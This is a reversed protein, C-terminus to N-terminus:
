AKHHYKHFLLVFVYKKLTYIVPLQTQEYCKKNKFDILIYFHYFNLFFTYTPLNFKHKGKHTLMIAILQYLNKLYSEAKIGYYRVPIFGSILVRVYHIFFYKSHHIFLELKLVMSRSLIGLFLFLTNLVIVSCKWLYVAQKHCLCGRPNMKKNYVCANGLM